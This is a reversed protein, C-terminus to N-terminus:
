TGQSKDAAPWVEKMGWYRSYSAERGLSAQKGPIGSARNSRDPSLEGVRPPM